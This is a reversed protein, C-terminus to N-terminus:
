DNKVKRDAAKFEEMPINVYGIIQRGVHRKGAAFDAAHNSEPHWGMGWTDAIINIICDLARKAQEPTAEGRACSKLAHVDAVEVKAPAWPLVEKRVAM